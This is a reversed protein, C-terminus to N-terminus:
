PRGYRNPARGIRAYQSYRLLQKDFLQEYMTAANFNSVSLFALHLAFYKVAQCWPEPILEVSLDTELDSPLVLCDWETIQQQSPLPYFYFSGSVGQGFMAGFTPVYQYAGATYNRILSQYTSFDYIRVTYRFNAYIVAVSRVYYVAEAGPNGTLDIASFPYVEQGPILLNLPSLIPVVTAGTGGSLSDVLTIQPQYYGWGGYTINVSNVGHGAVPPNITAVGTAQSGNPYPAVGSPFDPATIVVTPANLYGTGPNTVTARIIAGSSNTMVRCCQARMAVEKRAINIWSILTEPNFLDQKADRLLRQIEKLYTNLTAM